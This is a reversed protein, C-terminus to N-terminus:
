AKAPDADDASPPKGLPVRTTALGVPPQAGLVTLAVNAGEALERREADTPEWVSTINLFGGDGEVVETWLDNDETGGSLSYVKNSDHTRRPKM